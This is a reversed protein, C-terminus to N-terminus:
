NWTEQFVDIECVSGAVIRGSIQDMDVASRVNQDFMGCEFVSRRGDKM